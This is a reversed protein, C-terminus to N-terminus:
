SASPTRTQTQVDEKKIVPYQTPDWKGSPPEVNVPPLKDLLSAYQPAYYGTLELNAELGNEKPIKFDDEQKHKFSLKDVRLYRSLQQIETVFRYVDKYEGKIGLKIQVSRISSKPLYAELEQRTVKPTKGESPIRSGEQGEEPLVEKALEAASMEKKEDFTASEITISSISQMEGLDKILQENYPKVPFLEAMRRLKEQPPRSDTGQKKKVVIALETRKQELQMETEQKKELVPTLYLYYFVALLLFLLALGLLVYQRQKEEM